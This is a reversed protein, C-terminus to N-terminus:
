ANCVQRPAKSGNALLMDLMRLAMDERTQAHEADTLNNREDADELRDTLEEEGTQHRVYTYRADVLAFSARDGPLYGTRYEILCERRPPADRGFEDLPSIGDAFPLPACGLLTCVMPALDVSSVLQARRGPRVGPAKVLLPVNILGRYFFPGKLWLGHDGLLEGHDSTFIVITDEALGEQALTRLISGVNRDILEVMAATKRIRDDRWATPVGGSHAPPCAGARTWAGDLHQRYHAPRGSLDAADGVPPKVPRDRWAADLTEPPDFPHHPDPFSAVLFFPRGDARAGRLYECAREGVFTSVHLAEPIQMAGSMADQTCRTLAFMEDTGGHEFFWQRYHGRQRQHGVTLEVYDFGGYPGHRDYDAREDAWRWAAEPSGVDHTYVDTPSFHIKGISATRYGMAALHAPLTYDSPRCALGNTWVGHNHPYMGTFLSTRNPGCIPNAVYCEDYRASQAALADLNPTVAYSNGYCGLSDKRLQDCMIWLVNRPPM